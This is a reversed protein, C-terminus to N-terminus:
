VGVAEKGSRRRILRKLDNVSQNNATEPHSFQKVYKAFPGALNKPKASSGKKRGVYIDPKSDRNIPSPTSKSKKAPPAEARVRAANKAKGAGNVIRAVEAEDELSSLLTIQENAVGLILVRGAVEVMAISKKPGLFGTSIVRIPKDASGFMGQKAVVKKFIYFLLFMLGVVFALTALMKVAYGMLSQEENAKENGALFVAGSKEEKFKIPTKKKLSSIKEEKLEGLPEVDNGYLSKNNQPVKDKVRRITSVTQKEPEPDASVLEPQRNQEEAFQRSSAGVARKILQDLVEDNSGGPNKIRVKLSNGEKSFNFHRKDLGNEQALIFRVRMLRSDFQSVYVQTIPSEEIDYHRKPPDVYTLSFDLQVSRKFYHPVLQQRIPNKFDFRMVLEEGQHFVEVNRLANYETLPISRASATLPHLITGLLILFLPTWLKMVNHREM